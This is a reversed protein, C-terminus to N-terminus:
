VRCFSRPYKLWRIGHISRVITGARPTRFQDGAIGVSFERRGIGPAHFVMECIMGFETIFKLGLSGKARFPLNAFGRSRRYRAVGLPGSDM